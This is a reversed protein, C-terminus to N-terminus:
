VHAKRRKQRNFWRRQRELNTQAQVQICGSCIGCAAQVSGGTFSCMLMQPSDCGM